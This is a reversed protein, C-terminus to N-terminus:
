PAGTDVIRFDVYEELSRFNKDQDRVTTAIMEKWVRMVRETCKKDTKTLHYVMKAEIQKKGIAPNV